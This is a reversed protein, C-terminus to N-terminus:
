AGCGTDPTAGEPRPALYVDTRNSVGTINDGAETAGAGEGNRYDVSRPVRFKLEYVVGPWEGGELRRIEEPALFRGAVIEADASAKAEKLWDQLATHLGDVYDDCLEEHNHQMVGPQTAEAWVRAICGLKRVGRKRTNRTNGQVPLFADGAQTDREITIRSEVSGASFYEPAYHVRIPFKRDALMGDLDVCMRQIM